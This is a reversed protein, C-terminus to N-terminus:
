SIEIRFNQCEGKFMDSIEHSEFSSYVFREANNITQRNVAQVMETSVDIGHIAPLESRLAELEAMNRSELLEQFKNMREHDHAILLCARKSLPFWVEATPSMIGGGYLGGTFGPDRRVVPADSSVFEGEKAHIVTWHMQTYIHGSAEAMTVMTDIGAHPRAVLRIKENMISDRLGDATISDDAEGKAKLEELKQEFYGPANAGFRMMHEQLHIEMKQFSARAWPTRFEQFAILYALLAREFGPLSYDRDLLRRLSPMAQGELSTLMADVVDNYGGDKQPISYYNRRKAAEDPILRFVKESNREYVWLQSDRDTNSTFGVLYAATVFHQQINRQQGKSKVVLEWEPEMIAM